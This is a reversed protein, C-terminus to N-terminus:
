DMTLSYTLGSLPEGFKDKFWVNLRIDDQLGQVILVLRNIGQRLIVDEMKVVGQPLTEQHHFDHGNVFLHFKCNADVFLDPVLSPDPLINNFRRTPDRNISSHVFATLFYTKGHSGPLTIYGARKEQRKMWGFVGEGLNNLIYDPASFYALMADYDQYDEKALAMFAEVGFDREEKEYLFTNTEVAGGLNSVLRSYYRIVKQNEALMLVQSFIVQGKGLPLVLGYTSPDFPEVHNRTAVSIKRFEDDHGNIFYETWPAHVDQLYAAGNGVALHHTCLISNHYTGPTYTVKEIHYLDHDSIFAAALQSTHRVQFVEGFKITIEQGTLLALLSAHDPEVPLILLTGGEAAFEKLQAANTENIADPDVIVLRNTSFGAPSPIQSFSGCINQFFKAATSNSDALLLPEKAPLPNSESAYSLMNQLLIAAQPITQCTEVLDLQNLIVKGAGVRYELLPSWLLGGWGFDGAGCELLIKLDGLTPKVFAKKIMMRANPAHMNEPQWFRMDENTLGNLIPHSFDTTFTSFFGRDSLSIDGLCFENQELVLLSGGSRVFSDLLPQVDRPKESFNNGLIVLDYVSLDANKVSTMHELPSALRALTSYCEDSGILVARCKNIQIPQPQLAPYLKYAFTASHVPHSAHFLNLTLVARTPESVEPLPLLLKVEFRDGPEQNFQRSGEMLLRGDDLTFRFDLSAEAVHETDNYISFSRPLDRSSYFSHNYENRFIATPHFAAQLYKWSPNPLFTEKEPILGNNITLANAPIKKPKPGPTTLDIWNLETQSSPMTWVSYNSMNFPCIGTVEERRAYEIFLQENLGISEQCADYNLYVAPGGLASCTQPSVYHWPGHEGFNLPRDKKWSAVTGDINYHMSIIEMQDPDVLRNDGDFSVPRTADLKKMAATLSKMANKYGDRGDVWRMENQMSWTIVSPHNRDRLILNRLHEQCRELFLPHDSATIKSSGYIASEDVVLMGMEDAVDLYFEPYPMAHLRVYNIGTERCARYWNAAYERTQQVFGQYHWADGRLNLRKGNLYFKHGESWIERFGFRVEVEDLIEAGKALTVHLSYLHPNEPSWEIVDKWAQTLTLIVSQKSPISIDYSNLEKVVTNGDLIVAQLFGARFDASNTPQNTLTTQIELMQNRTSTKVFVDQIHEKSRYELYVDQWIGRALQAFWSGNPALVKKGTSTDITDLPGCWVILENEADPMLYPTINIRLPLYAESSENVKHGNVYIVSRQFVATVTLIVQQGKPPAASFTRKLLGSSADNWSRPYNFLDYPQFEDKPDIMWRWSSPVNIKHNEWHAQALLEDPQLHNFDPAFDWEGNLYQRTRM